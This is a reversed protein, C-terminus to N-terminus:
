SAITKSQFQKDNRIAWGLILAWLPALVLYLNLGTEAIARIQLVGGLFDLLSCVGVVLTLWGLFRHELRIFIGIGVFWVGAVFSDLLNWLGGYVVQTFSEFLWRIIAQQEPAAGLYAELYWPWLVALISAGTAGLLIYSTGCFTLVQRWMTKSDLWGHVFYLAPLLLLYYGFVDAIMSWRLLGVQVGEMSFILSPDSFFDFNFNVGAAVLFYSIFAVIGSLITIQGVTHKFSSFNSM